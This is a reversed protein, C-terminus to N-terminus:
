DKNIKKLILFYIIFLLGWGWIFISNNIFLATLMVLIAMFLIAFNMSKNHKNKAKTVSHNYSAVFWDSFRGCHPCQPAQASIEHGCGICKISENNQSALNYWFIAEDNNQRRNQADGIITYVNDAGLAKAKQAWIMAQDRRRDMVELLRAYNVMGDINGMEAAKKYWYYYALTSEAGVVKGNEYAYALRVMSETNGSKAEREIASFDGDTNTYQMTSENPINDKITNHNGVFMSRPCGCNPCKSDGESIAEGCEPCVMKPKEVVVPCGCNPCQLARSSIMKGCDPCKILAM